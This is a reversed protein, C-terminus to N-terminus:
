LKVLLAYQVQKTNNSSAGPDRIQSDECNQVKFLNLLNGTTPTMLMEGFMNIMMIMVNVVCFHAFIALIKINKIM